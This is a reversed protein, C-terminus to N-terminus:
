RPLGLHLADGMGRTVLYHSWFGPVQRLIEVFQDEVRRGAEEPDTVGSYRRVVAYM